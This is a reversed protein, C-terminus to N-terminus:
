AVLAVITLPVNTSPYDYPWQSPTALMTAWPVGLAGTPFGAPCRPAASVIVGSTSAGQMEDGGEEV